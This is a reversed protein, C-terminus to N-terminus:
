PTEQDSVDYGCLLICNELISAMAVKDFWLGKEFRKELGSPDNPVDYACIFTKCRSEAEKLLNELPILSLDVKTKPEM